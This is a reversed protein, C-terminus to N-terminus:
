LPGTPAQGREEAPFLRFAHSDDGCLPCAGESSRSDLAVKRNLVKSCRLMLGASRSGTGKAGMTRIQIFSSRDFNHFTSHGRKMGGLVPLALPVSETSPNGVAESCIVGNHAVPKALASWASIECTLAM